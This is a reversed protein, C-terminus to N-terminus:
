SASSGKRSNWVLVGVGGLILAGLMWYLWSLSRPNEKPQYEAEYGGIKSVVHDTQKAPPGGVIGVTNEESSVPQWFRPDELFEPDNVLTEIKGIAEQKLEEYSKGGKNLALQVDFFIQSLEERKYRNQIAASIPLSVLKNDSFNEKIFNGFSFANRSGSFMLTEWNDNKQLYLAYSLFEINEPVNKALIRFNITGSTILARLYEESNDGKLNQRLEEEALESNVSLKKKLNQFTDETIEPGASLLSSSLMFLWFFLLNKM